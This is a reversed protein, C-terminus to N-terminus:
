SKKKYVSFYILYGEEKGMLSEDIQQSGLMDWALEKDRTNPISGTM